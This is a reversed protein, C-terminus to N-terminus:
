PKINLLAIIDNRDIEIATTNEVATATTLHNEAALLSSMGVLGGDDAVDLIVNENNADRITVHVEGKQVIYALGGPEGAKFIIQGKKFTRVSVQQALVKREEDDLLEFIPVDNFIKYDVM